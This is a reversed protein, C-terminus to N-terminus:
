LGYILMTQSAKFTWPLSSSILNQRQEVGKGLKMKRFFLSYMLLYSPGRFLCCDIKVHLLALVDKSPNESKFVLDIDHCVNTSELGDLMFNQFQFWFSHAWWGRERQHWFSGTSLASCRRTRKQSKCTTSDRILVTSQVRCVPQKRPFLVLRETVHSNCVPGTFSLKKEVLCSM